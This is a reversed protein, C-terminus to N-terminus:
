VLGGTGNLRDGERDAGSDGCSTCQRRRHRRPPPSPPAAACSSAGAADKDNRLAIGRREWAAAADCLSVAVVAPPVRRGRRCGEGCVPRLGLSLTGEIPRSDPRSPCWHRYPIATRRGREATSWSGSERRIQGIATSRNTGTPHTRHSRISGPPPARNTRRILYEDAGYELRM